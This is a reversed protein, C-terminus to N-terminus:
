ILVINLILGCTIDKLEILRGIRRKRDCGSVYRIYAALQLKEQIDKSEDIALSFPVGAQIGIILQM